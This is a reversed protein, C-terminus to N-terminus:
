CRQRSDLALPRCFKFVNDLISSQEGFDCSQPRIYYQCGGERGKNRTMTEVVSLTIVVPLLLSLFGLGSNSDPTEDKGLVRKVALSGLRANSRLGPKDKPTEIRRGRGATQPRDAIASRRRSRIM